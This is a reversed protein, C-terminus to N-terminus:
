DKVFDFIGIRGGIRKGTGHRGKFRVDVDYVYPKGAQAHAPGAGQYQFNNGEPGTLANAHLTSTGEAGINGRLELWGAKGRNGREGHLVDNKIEASFHYVYALAVQGTNPDKYDHANLTVLWTGAFATRDSAAKTETSPVALIAFMILSSQM